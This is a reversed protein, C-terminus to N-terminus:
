AESQPSVVTRQGHTALVRKIFPAKAQTYTAKDSAHVLALRRKLAAYSLMLDRDERLADRFQLHQLLLTGGLIIGHLHVRPTHGEARVFYRRDPILKEYEPRYTFGLGVLAPIEEEVQKLVGVGLVIDIIPKACLGPVATSGIHELTMGPISIASRLEAEVQAYQSPWQDQYEIVVLASM